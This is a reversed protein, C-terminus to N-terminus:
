LTVKLKNSVIARMDKLHKETAIMAGASGKGETPRIGCTWLDDMLTQAQEPELCTFIMPTEFRLQEKFNASEACMMGESTRQFVSINVLGNPFGQLMARVSKEYTVM